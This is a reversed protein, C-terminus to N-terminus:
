RPTPPLIATSRVDPWVHVLPVQPDPATPFTYSQSLTDTLREGLAILLDTKKLEDLLKAPTRIGVHGAYHPHSSDFLHTRKNTNCVPLCWAEALRELDALAAPTQLTAGPWILPRNARALMDVLREFDEARPGPVVAPRPEVLPADTKEDLLDEPLIVAVPGPTGSQALHFARSIADSARRADFVEIVSKTIDSLLRPYNQEQLAMRGIDKREVHGILMVLPVADHFATHLSVMAHSIGPGRSVLCVGARNRLLGDALAMYGAGGEHRCVILRIGPVDTLADTLGLYSEGPVCFITDVGHLELSSAIKKGASEIM